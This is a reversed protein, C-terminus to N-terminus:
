QRIEVEVPKDALIDLDDLLDILITIQERLLVVQPHAQMDIQTSVMSDLHRRMVELKDIVMQREAYVM